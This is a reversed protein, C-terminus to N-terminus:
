GCRRHGDHVEQGELALVHGLDFGRAWGGDGCGGGPVFVYGDGVFVGESFETGAGGGGCEGADGGFGRGASGGWWGVVGIDAWFEKTHNTEDNAENEIGFHRAKITDGGPAIVFHEVHFM